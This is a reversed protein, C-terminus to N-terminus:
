PFRWDILLFDIVEIIIYAFIIILIVDSAILRIDTWKNNIRLTIMSRLATIKMRLLFSLYKFFGIEEYKSWYNIWGRILILFIIAYFIINSLLILKSLIIYTWM